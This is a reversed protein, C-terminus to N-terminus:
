PRDLFDVRGAVATFVEGSRGRMRPFVDTNGTPDPSRGARNVATGSADGTRPCVGLGTARRGRAAIADRTTQAAGSARRPSPPSCPATRGGLPAQAAGPGFTM